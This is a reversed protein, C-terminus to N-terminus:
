LEERRALLVVRKVNKFQKRKTVRIGPEGRLKKEFQEMRVKGYNGFTVKLFDKAHEMSIDYSNLPFSKLTGVKYVLSGNECAARLLDRVDKAKKSKVRPEDQDKEAEYESGESESLSSSQADMEDEKLSPTSTEERSISTEANLLGDQLTYVSPLNQLGIGDIQFEKIIESSTTTTDMVREFKSMRLFTDNFQYDFSDSRKIISEVSTKVNRMDEELKDLRELIRVELQDVRVKLAENKQFVGKRTCSSELEAIRTELPTLRDQALKKELESLKTKLELNQLFGGGGTPPRRELEAIRSELRPRTQVLKREFDSIHALVRTTIQTEIDLKQPGIFAKELEVIRPELTQSLFSKRELVSLRDEITEREPRPTKELEAIRAELRLILSKDSRTELEIIRSELPTM